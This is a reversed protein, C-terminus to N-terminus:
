VSDYYAMWFQGTQGLDGNRVVDKFNSYKELFTMCATSNMVEILSEFSQCVALAQFESMEEVEM